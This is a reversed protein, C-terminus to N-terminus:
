EEEKIVMLEDYIDWEEWRSYYCNGNRFKVEGKDVNDISHYKLVVTCEYDKSIREALNVLPSWASEFQFFLNGNLVKGETYCDPWKSGFTKLNYDRWNTAGYEDELKKKEGKTLDVVEFNTEPFLNSVLKGEENYRWDEPPMVVKNHVKVYRLEDTSTGIVYKLDQPMPYLSTGIHFYKEDTLKIKDQLEKKTSPKAKIIMVNDVWNPM